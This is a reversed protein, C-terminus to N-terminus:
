KFTKKNLGSKLDTLDMFTTNQEKYTNLFLNRDACLISNDVM